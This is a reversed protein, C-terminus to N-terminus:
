TYALDWFEQDHWRKIKNAVRNEHWADTQPCKKWDTTVSSEPESSILPLYKEKIENQLKQLGQIYELRADEMLNYVKRTVPHLDQHEQNFEIPSMDKCDIAAFSIRINNM